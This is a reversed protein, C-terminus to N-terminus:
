RTSPVEPPFERLVRHFWAMDQWTGFKHGVRPFTGIRRFGVAEHLAISAENPLVVGAYANCYGADALASFLADYLRRGIGRRRHREELYVCTEASWRYAARERHAAGYAFGIVRRDEDEAVLAAWGAAYKRVRAAYEELSPAQVEFSTTTREVFPRYIELMAAADDESAKRIRTM